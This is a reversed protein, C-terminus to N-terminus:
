CTHYKLNEFFFPSSFFRYCDEICTGTFQVFIFKQCLIVLTLVLATAFHICQNILYSFLDRISPSTMQWLSLSLFFSLFILFLFKVIIYNKNLFRPKRGFLPFKDDFTYMRGFLCVFFFFVWKLKGNITLKITLFLSIFLLVPISYTM